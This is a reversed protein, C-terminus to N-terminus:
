AFKGRRAIGFKGIDAEIFEGVNKSFLSDAQDAATHIQQEDFSRLVNEFDFGGDGANMFGEVLSLSIQRDLSLHREIRGSAHQEAGVDFGREGDEFTEANIDDTQVTGGSGLVHALGDADEAFLGRKGNRADGVGPKRKVHIPLGNIQEFRFRERVIKKFEHGLMVDRNNASAAPRGGFM